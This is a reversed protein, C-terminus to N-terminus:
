NHLTQYDKKHKTYEKDFAEAVDDLNVFYPAKQSNELKFCPFPFEQNSAKSSILKKSLHPYYEACLDTLQIITKKFQLFLYDRTSLKM